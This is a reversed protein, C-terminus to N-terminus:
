MKIKLLYYIVNLLYSNNKKKLIYQSIYKHM